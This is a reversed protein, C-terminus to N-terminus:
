ASKGSLLAELKRLEDYMVRLEGAIHSLTPPAVLTGKVATLTDRGYMATAFQRDHGDIGARTARVARSPYTGSTAVVVPVDSGIADLYDAVFGMLAATDPQHGYKLQGQENIYDERDVRLMFVPRGVRHGIMILQKTPQRIFRHEADVTYGFPMIVPELLATYGPQSEAVRKAAQYQTESTEEAAIGYRAQEFTREEANTKQNESGAYIFFGADLSELEAEAAMKWALGGENLHVYGRAVGRDAPLIDDKRGIGFRAAVERLDSEQRPDLALDPSDRRAEGPTSSPQLFVEEPPITSDGTVAGVADGIWGLGETVREQLMTRREGNGAEYGM